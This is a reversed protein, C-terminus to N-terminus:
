KTLDDTTSGRAYDHMMIPQFDNAVAQWDFWGDVVADARDRPRLDHAEDKHTVSEDHISDSRAVHLTGQDLALWFKATTNSGNQLM